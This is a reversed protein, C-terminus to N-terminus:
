MKPPNFTIHPNKKEREREREREREKKVIVLPCNRTHLVFIKKGM